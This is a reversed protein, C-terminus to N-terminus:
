GGTLAQMHRNVEEAALRARKNSPALAEETFFDPLADDAVSFGADRNFQRELRITERGLDELFQPEIGLDFAGNLTDAILTHNVDTVSRGFVCLGLSDAIASNIQARYSAAVLEAVSKGDCVFAPLNGTTHDAGQATMMMSVGTVEIVRPDYASIAQKKIVPVRKVGLAAGVRATGQALFRGRETGAGIDKLAELMFEVDGFEAQGAEMLVALTAGAEITDISIANAIANVRAIDDPNDLGCNTGMLGITEYELPSVMEEGDPGVYINSCQILCGPMCAHSVTGGRAQNLAHIADGGAALKGPESMQGASFNRVPLGGVTNTFDGVSATGFKKLTQVAGSEGLLRGYEKVGKMVKVRDKFPPMRDRDIVIAKVKKSGLVAGVGGRAAFRTPRNEDDSFAIAAMLGCYEGVPGTLCVSIKEGYRAHLKRAAEFNDLGMYADAPEFSSQGDKSIRIVVWGDAAGHLTLCFIGLQGMAFAFTGGANAEKIGGTLPSKCGVSLRNANSFNTGALPGASFIMPNAPSLPDVTAVGAATLERAILYRGAIALDRGEVPTRAVVRAALDIDLKTRM